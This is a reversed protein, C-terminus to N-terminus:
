SVTAPVVDLQRGGHNSVVIGQVGHAVAELADEATLIGKIVVPMKTLGQVWKVTDWTLQEHVIRNYLDNEGGKTSALVTGDFIGLTMHEPLSFDNRSDVLRNGVVQTDATIMIAKFGAQEARQILNKTVEKDRYVYLQFWRLAGPGSAEAVKEINTTSWSSLTM